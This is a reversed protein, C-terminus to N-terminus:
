VDASRAWRGALERLLAAANRMSAEGDPEIEALTRVDGSAGEARGALVVCPIEGEAAMERMRGVTKGQGSQGDFRGEGTVVLDAGRVREALGVAEAVVDFGSMIRGGLFAVLGGALGGAAGAGPMDALAVGLSREVVAAYRQLAAEIVEVDGASAGKQPGFVAAAGRPGVLPNTVDSAVLVEMGALSRPPSWDIRALDALAAAGAPLDRGAEDRLRAGLARAMGSGGDSTASGGVGVVIRSPGGELAAAILEGVGETSARLADRENPAILALGNAMASELACTGTEAIDLVEATRARGLADRTAVSRARGQTARALATLFGPGGDSLPLEEITWDPRAQALGGAIAGAAEEATLSEKFEQPAVLVRMAESGATGGSM